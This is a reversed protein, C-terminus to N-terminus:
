EFVTAGYGYSFIISLIDCRSIIYHTLRLCPSKNEEWAANWKPAVKLDRKLKKMEATLAGVM